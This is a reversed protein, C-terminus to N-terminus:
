SDSLDTTLRGLNTALMGLGTQEEAGAAASGLAAAIWADSVTDEGVQSSTSSRHKRAPREHSICGAQHLPSM